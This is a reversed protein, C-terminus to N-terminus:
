LTGDRVVFPRWPQESNHTTMGKTFNGVRIVQTQGGPLSM